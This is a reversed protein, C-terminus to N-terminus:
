YEEALMFTIVFRGTGAKKLDEVTEPDYLETWKAPDGFDDLKAYVKKPLGEIYTMLSRGEDEYHTECPTPKFVIFDTQTNIHKLGFEMVTAQLTESLESIFGRTRMITFMHSFTL